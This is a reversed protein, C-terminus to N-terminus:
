HFNVSPRLVLAGVRVLALIAGVTRFVHKAPSVEVTDRNLIDIRDDLTPTEVKRTRTAMIAPNTHPACAPRHLNLEFPAFLTYTAGIDPSLRRLLGDSIRYLHDDGAIFSSTGAVV